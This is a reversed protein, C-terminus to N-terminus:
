AEKKSFGYGRTCRIAEYMNHMGNRLDTLEESELKRNRPIVKLRDDLYRAFNYRTTGEVFNLVESGSSNKPQIGMPVKGIGYPKEGLKTGLMVMMGKRIEDVTHASGIVEEYRNFIDGIVKGELQSLKELLKNRGPDDKSLKEQIQDLYNIQNPHPILIVGWNNINAGTRLDDLLEAHTWYFGDEGDTIVTKESGDRNVERFLYKNEQYGKWMYRNKKTPWTPRSLHGSKDLSPEEDSHDGKEGWINFDPFPIGELVFGAWVIKSIPSDFGVWLKNPGERSLQVESM